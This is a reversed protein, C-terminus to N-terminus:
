FKENDFYRYARELKPLLTKTEFFKDFLKCFLQILPGCIFVNLVTGYSLHYNWFEWTHYVGYLIFISLVMFFFDYGVFILSTNKINFHKIVGKQTFTITSSYIYTKMACTVSISILIISVFLLIWNLYTPYTVGQRFCPIWQVGYMILNCFFTTLFSLLFFPRFKRVVICFVILIILENILAAFPYSGFIYRATVMTQPIAQEILYALALNPVTYVGTGLNAVVSMPIAFSILTISLIYLIEKRVKIKKMSLFYVM